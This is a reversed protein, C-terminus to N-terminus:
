GSPAPHDFSNATRARSETPRVRTSKRIVACAVQYETARGSFERLRRRRLDYGAITSTYPTQQDLTLSRKRKGKLHRTLDLMRIANHESLM